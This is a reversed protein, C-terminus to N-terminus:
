ADLMLFRHANPHSRVDFKRTLYPKAGSIKVICQERPLRSVDTPTIVREDVSVVTGEDGARTSAIPTTGCLDSAFAATVLSSGTGMIVMSDCNEMIIDRVEAGYVHDLQGLSQVCMLVGMDRSRMVSIAREFSDLCGLNCFEDAILQVPMKLKGGPNADAKKMAVNILMKFALNGLFNNAADNDNMVLYIVRRREDIEDLCLEDCDLVREIEPTCVRALDSQLTIIISKVTKEAGSKFAHYQRVGFSDRKPEFVLKRGEFFPDAMEGKTLQDVMHDLPTLDAPSSDPTARVMDLLRRINRMTLYRPGALGQARGDPSLWGNITELDYLLGLFSGMGVEGMKPWFVDSTQDRSPSIAELVMKTVVPIDDETHIYAFPNFCASRGLDITDLRTVEYGDQEFGAATARYLEGKTDTVVYSGPLHNVLTPLVGSYTKGAGSSALFM